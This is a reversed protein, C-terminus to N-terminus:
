YPIETPSLRSPRDFLFIRGLDMNLNRLNTDNTVVIRNDVDDPRQSLTDLEPTPNRRFESLQDDGRYCGSLCLMATAGAGICVLRVWRRSVNMSM